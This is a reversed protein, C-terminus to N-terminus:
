QLVLVGKLMFKVLQCIRREEVTQLATFMVKDERLRIQHQLGELQQVLRGERAEYQKRVKAEARYCELEMTVKVSELKGALEQCQEKLKGVEMELIVCQSKWKTVECGFEECKDKWQQVSVEEQKLQEQLESIAQDNSSEQVKHKLLEEYLARLQALPGPNTERVLWWIYYKVAILILKVNAM